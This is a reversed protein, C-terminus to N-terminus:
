SIYLKDLHDVAIITRYILEPDLSTACLRLYFLFTIFCNLQIYTLLYNLRVMRNLNYCQLRVTLAPLTVAKRAHSRPQRAGSHKVDLSRRGHAAVSMLCPVIRQQLWRINDIIVSLMKCICEMYRM